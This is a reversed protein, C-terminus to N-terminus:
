RGTPASLSKALQSATLSRCLFTLTDRCQDTGQPAMVGVGVHTSNPAGLRRLRASQPQGCAHTGVGCSHRPECMASMGGPTRPGHYSAPPLWTHGVGRRVRRRAAAGAARLECRNRANGAARGRREHDRSQGFGRQRASAIKITAPELAPDLRYIFPWPHPTGAFAGDRRPVAGPV